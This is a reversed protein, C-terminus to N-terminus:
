LHIGQGPVEPTRELHGRHQSGAEKADVREPSCCFTGLIWTNLVLFGWDPSNVKAVQLFFGTIGWLVPSHCTKNWCTTRRLIDSGRAESWCAKCAWAETGKCISNGRSHHRERGGGAKTEEISGERVM